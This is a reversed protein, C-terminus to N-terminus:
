APLCDLLQKRDRKLASELSTFPMKFTDQVEKAAEKLNSFDSVNAWLHFRLPSWARKAEEVEEFIVKSLQFDRGSVRVIIERVQEITFIENGLEIEKGAFKQPNQLAAAAYRGIDNADTQPMKAGDNYAHDMIGDKSLRPFNHEASPLLYDFHIFAPRLITYAKLNASRVIAEVEAKSVFYDYLQYQKTEPTDWMAKNGTCLTTAAVVSEVGAQVCAEVITKAQQAELGPIPYTNLFAGKCGHAAKLISQLDHSEGKFITVGPLALTPPIKDPNRVVAHVTAGEALLHKIVWQSQQGTAQTVLYTSM